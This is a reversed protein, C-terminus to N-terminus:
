VVARAAYERLLKLYLYYDELSVGPPTQHDVSPIFYGSRMVPMLREFEARMAAEGRHMVTKDFAGIMKWRPHSRRIRNVDVGAMRELPLIGELGVEEFWPILPEVDGDSDILPTIGCAKLAPVVERFYPAMFEDFQPKSIMPGHNYSMDEGFTMFDPVCVACFDDLCRLIYETQDRNIRHMLAPRDYFAYLHPEIGLLVRPWWFFGSFTIWVVVSGAAQEEARKRWLDRDWPIPDPYLFPRLADYDAEDEIWGQGHVTPPKPPRGPGFQPFWLQYDMDLDFYRKIEVWDLEPPLGEGRWRDITQDWWTAWEIVPLRDAPREGRLVKLFRSRVTEEPVPNGKRSIKRLRAIM